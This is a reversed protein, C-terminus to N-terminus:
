VYQGMCYMKVVNLIVYYTDSLISYMGQIIDFLMLCRSIFNVMVVPYTCSLDDRLSYREGGNLDRWASKKGM